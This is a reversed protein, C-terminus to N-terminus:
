RRSPTPAARNETIRVRKGVPVTTSEEGEEEKSTSTTSSESESYEAHAEATVSEEFDAVGEISESASVTVSM